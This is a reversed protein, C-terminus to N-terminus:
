PGLSGKVRLTQADKFSVEVKYIKGNIPKYVKGGDWCNEEANYRIGYVIVVQDSPTTRKKPDPNKVDLKRSGDANNPESLWIIQGQYTGDDCKTFRVKSQRGEEEVKDVGVIKDAASQAYTTAAGLLCMAAVVMKMMKKM